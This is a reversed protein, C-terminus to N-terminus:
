QLDQNQSKGFSRCKFGALDGLLREVFEEWTLYFQSETIHLWSLGLKFLLPTIMQTKLFFIHPQLPSCPTTELHFIDPGVLLLSSSSSSLYLWQLLYIKVGCIMFPPSGPCRVIHTYIDYIAM